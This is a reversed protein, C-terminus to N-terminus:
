LHRDPESRRVSDSRPPSHLSLQLSEGDRGGGDGDPTGSQAGGHGPEDGQPRQRLGQQHHHLGDWHRPWGWSGGPSGSSPGTWVLCIKHISEPQSLFEYYTEILKDDNSIGIKWVQIVCGMFVEEVLSPSVNAKDLCSKIASSGLKTATM